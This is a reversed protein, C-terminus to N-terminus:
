LIVRSSVAGGARFRFAETCDVFGEFIGKGDREM